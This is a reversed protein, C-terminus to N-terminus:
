KEEGENTLIQMIAEESAEKIPLIKAIGGDRFVAIKDCVALLEPMESSVMM